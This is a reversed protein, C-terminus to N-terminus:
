NLPNVVITETTTPIDSQSMRVSLLGGATFTNEESDKFIIILGGLTFGYITEIHELTIRIDLKNGTVTKEIQKVYPHYNFLLMVQNANTLVTNLNIGTLVVRARRINVATNIFIPICKTINVLTNNMYAKNVISNDSDSEVDLICSTLVANKLKHNNMDLNGDMRDGAQNIYVTHAEERTLLNSTDTEDNGRFPM